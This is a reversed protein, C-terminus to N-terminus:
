LFREVIEKIFLGGIVSLYAISIAYVTRNLKKDKNVDEQTVIRPIVAFVPYKFETNLTDVDKISNDFHELLLVVGVGAAIGALIGLLIMKIRDPSVPNLPMVARDVIRFNTGKDELEMQKSVEAKGVRGLLNEYIRRYTNRERMMDTLIKEDAPMNKLDSELKKISDNLSSRKVKLSDIESAMKMSDEKLKQYMPNMISTGSVIDDDVIEEHNGDEIQKKLHEIEAKIRLVEPYKETYKILLVPLNKELKMLRFQINKNGGGENDVIALTLPEEGSLQQQIKEKRAVYEKIQMETNGAVGSLRKISEIITKEDAAYFLEKEIRFKSLKEEAENLKGKYHGIQETLFKNASYTGERKASTNEEIYISVLTNVYDRVLKPEKGVYSVIFLDSGKINIGTNNQFDTIVSEMDKQNTLKADLDLARIVKLLMERSNMTYTLVRLSNKVSPTLVMGRVLSSIINREIFVTSSAQYKKSLFFSGWVIVSMVVLSVLIFIYKRGKIVQWYKRIDGSGIDKM